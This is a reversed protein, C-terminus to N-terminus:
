SYLSDLMLQHEDAAADEEESSGGGGGRPPRWGRGGGGRKRARAAELAQLADVSAGAAEDKAYELVLHRGYLHADALAARAAAAESASAFDVFAYGKGRGDGNRPVRVTKVSAFAAFLARIEKASAAFAINKVILKPSPAGALAAAAAGGRRRGGGAPAVLDSAAAAAAADAGRTSLKLELAHGDLRSRRKRAVAASAVAHPEGPGESGLRREFHARLAADTTSFNLNKVFVSVSTAPPPPPAASAGVDASVPTDDGAGGATRVRKAAPADPSEAAGGGGGGGGGSDGGGGAAAAVAEAAAERARKSTPAGFRAVAAAPAWELYLPRDGMRSYALEAHAKKADGAAAFQVVALVGGPAVVVGTLLGFPAFRAELGEATTGAPLNKALLATRSRRGGGALAGVDVGAAALASRADAQLRAEGAALRVAAYGDDALVEATTVGLREATARAVAHADVYLASRGASADTGAIASAVRAGAAAAQYASGGPAGRGHAGAAATAAPPPPPRGAAPLIHLIRGAFIEGDLAAMAAVACEPLVYLIYATGRSARSDPDVVLHVEALTGHRSFLTDLEDETVSFALNRVFLRGTEGADAGDALTYQKLTSGDQLATAPKLPVASPPSPVLNANADGSGDGAEDGSSSDGSDSDDSDSGDSDSDSGSEADSGDAADGDGDSESAVGARMKSRLYDADSVAVDAAVGGGGTGDAETDVGGGGADAAAKGGAVAPLDQYEDDDEEEEEDSGGAGGDGGDGSDSAEGGFHMHTRSLLVGEGGAKKSPVMAVEARARKAAGRRGREPAAAATSGPVGPAGVAMGDAWLPKRTRKTTVAKFEEFKPDARRKAAAADAAGGGGAHPDGGGGGRPGGGGGDEQEAAYRRSGVSYRSWPRPIGEDGVARAYEVCLRAAGLYTRHLGARAAAAATPDDFGVFGFQRSRGGATALVRADTLSGYKAFAARLAATDTKPALGKVILRSTSTPNATSTVVPKGM